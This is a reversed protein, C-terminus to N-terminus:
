IVNEYKSRRTKLYEPFYESSLADYAEMPSTYGRSVSDILHIILTNYYRGYNAKDANLKGISAMYLEDSVRGKIVPLLGKSPAFRLDFSM